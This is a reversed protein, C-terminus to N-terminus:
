LSSPVRRCHEVRWRLSFSEQDAAVLHRSVIEELGVLTVIDGVVSAVLDDLAASVIVDEFEPELPSRPAHRSEFLLYVAQHLQCVVLNFLHFGHRLLEIQYVCLWLARIDAKPVYRRPQPIFLPVMKPLILQSFRSCQDLSSHHFCSAHHDAVLGKAVQGVEEPGDDGVLGLSLLVDVEHQSLKISKPMVQLTIESCHITLLAPFSLPYKPFNCLFQILFGERILLSNYSVLRQVKSTNRM